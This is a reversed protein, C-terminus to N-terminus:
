AKKKGKSDAGCNRQNSLDIFKKGNADVYINNLTSDQHTARSRTTFHADSFRPPLRLNVRAQPQHQPHGLGMQLQQDMTPGQVLSTPSAYWRVTTIHSEQTAIGPEVDEVEM